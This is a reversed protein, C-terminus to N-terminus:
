FIEMIVKLGQGHQQYEAFTMRMKSGFIAVEVVRPTKPKSIRPRKKRVNTIQWGDAIMQLFEQHAENLEKVKEQFNSCGAWEKRINPQKM